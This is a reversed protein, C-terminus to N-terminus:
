GPLLLLAEIDQAISLPETTPEYRGYVHGNRDILFKSFNWKIGDGAYIDPYKEQLFNQMWQSNAIQPDFGRFPAKQTLHQFLPHAGAGRVEIKEFLPFKMGFSSQCYELVESNSGPEKENFQNCPFALIELGQDKYTEYLQQLDAFQSSYSCRSATNVILLVQGRYFSLEVPKGDMTIVQFDYISM